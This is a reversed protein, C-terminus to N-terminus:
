FNIYKQFVKGLRALAPSKLAKALAELPDLYCPSWLRPSALAKSHIQSECVRSALGVTAKFTHAAWLRETMRPNSILFPGSFWFILLLMLIRRSLFPTLVTPAELLLTIVPFDKIGAHLPLPLHIEHTYPWGPRCLSNWFLWPKM